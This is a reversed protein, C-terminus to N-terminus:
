EPVDDDQRAQAVIEEADDLMKSLPLRDIEPLAAIRPKLQAIRHPEEICRELGARIDAIEQDLDDPEVDPPPGAAKIKRKIAAKVAATGKAKPEDTAVPEVMEADIARTYAQIDGADALEDAQAARHFDEGLPLRKALRRIPAKRYMQDAWGSYAPSERDGRQASSRIKELDEVAMWEIEFEGSAMKALAYAGLLKGRNALAPKHVVHASTGLDIEFTDREYVVHSALSKVQGSRLALKILGRYGVMFTATTKFPVIYAEGKVGSPELGVQACAILALYISEPSCRQLQQSQSYELLAFRVLSAPEIRGQAWEALKATRDALFRQLAQAPNSPKIVQMAAQTM